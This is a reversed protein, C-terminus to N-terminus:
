KLLVDKVTHTQVGSRKSLAHLHGLFILGEILTPGQM